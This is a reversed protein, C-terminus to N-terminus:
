LRFGPKGPGHILFGTSALLMIWALAAPAYGGVRHAILLAAVFNIIMVIAAPRFFLGLIFLIGCILQAWVSLNAAFLPAPVRNTALFDRFELMRAWNFVNDQTGYILHFGIILRIPFLGYEKVKEFREFM